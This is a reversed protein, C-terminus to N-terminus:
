KRIARGGVRPCSRKLCNGVGPGFSQVQGPPQKPTPPITVPLISGHMVRELINSFAPLVSVPRYYNTFIAQEGSKFIPTVRVIKLQYPVIGSTISLNIISTAPFIIKDISDKILNMSINDHGVATFSLYWM